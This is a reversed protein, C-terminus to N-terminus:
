VPLAEPASRGASRRVRVTDVTILVLGVWVLAFGVVREAPLAEHYRLWGLFFNITPILYQMPGLLTFPVRQAAWGFLTLPVVTAVGTLAVLVFQGASASSPISDSAGALATAVVIAPVLVVFSEAAMSDLPTLPVERKLWGYMSWSGALLLAIWPVKGYGVGLVVVALVALGIAIRQLRSVHEHFVLVGVAITGLPSLFYGLATEIVHGHVVAWVYSCWNCTLLLAAMVVRRLLARDRLVPRLLAWRHTATLVIAMVASASIVRWGVLEFADFDTLLKWYLTLAGWVLYATLGAVVGSRLRQEDPTM